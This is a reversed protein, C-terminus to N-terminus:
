LTFIIRLWTEFVCVDSKATLWYKEEWEQLLTCETVQLSPKLQQVPLTSPLGMSWRCRRQPVFGGVSKLIFRRCPAAPALNTDIALRYAPWMVAFIFFFHMNQEKPAKTKTKNNQHHHHPTLSHKLDSKTKYTKCQHLFSPGKHM